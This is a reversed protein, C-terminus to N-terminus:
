PHRHGPVRWAQSCLFRGSSSSLTKRKSACPSSFGTTSSAIRRRMTCIRHVSSSLFPDQRKAQRIAKPHGCGGASGTTPHARQYSICEVWPLRLIVSQSSHPVQQSVPLRAYQCAFHVGLSAQMIRLTSFSKVQWCLCYRLRPIVTPKAIAIHNHQKRMNAHTLLIVWGIDCGTGTEKRKERTASTLDTTGGTAQDCVARSQFPARTSCFQMVRLFGLNSDVPHIEAM